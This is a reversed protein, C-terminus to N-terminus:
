AQFYTNLDRNVASIEAYLCSESFFVKQITEQLEKRKNNVYYNLFLISSTVSMEVDSLKTYLRSPSGCALSKLARARIQVYKQIEIYM